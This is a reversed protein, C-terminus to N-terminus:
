DTLTFTTDNVELLDPIVVGIVANANTIQTEIKKTVEGYTVNLGNISDSVNVNLVAATANGGYEGDAFQQQDGVTYSLKDPVIKNVTMGSVTTDGGTYSAKEGILNISKLGAIDASYTGTVAENNNGSVTYSHSDFDIMVVFSDLADKDDRNTLITGNTKDNLRHTGSWDAGRISLIESNNADVFKVYGGKSLADFAFEYKGETLEKLQNQKPDGNYFYLKAEKPDSGGSATIEGGLATSASNYWWLANTEAEKHSASAVSAFASVTMAAAAVAAILKKFKMIKDERIM